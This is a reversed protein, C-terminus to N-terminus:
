SVGGRGKEKLFDCIPNNLLLIFSMMKDLDNIDCTSEVYIAKLKRLSVIADKMLSITFGTSQSIEKIFVDGMRQSPKTALPWVASCEYLTELVKTEYNDM